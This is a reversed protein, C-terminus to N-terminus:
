KNGSRWFVIAIIMFGIGTITPPLIKGKTGLYIMYIGLLALLVAASTLTTNRKM